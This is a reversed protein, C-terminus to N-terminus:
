RAQHCHAQASSGYRDVHMVHTGNLERVELGCASLVVVAGVVLAVAARM